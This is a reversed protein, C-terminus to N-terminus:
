PLARFLVSRGSSRTGAPGSLLRLELHYTTQKPAVLLLPPGEVRSVLADRAEALCFHTKGSGAPGLLFRVHVVSTQRLPCIPLTNQEHRNLSAPLLAANM